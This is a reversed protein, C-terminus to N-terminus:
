FEAQTKKYQGTRQWEEFDISGRRTGAETGGEKLLALNGKAGNDAKKEWVQGVRPCEGPHVSVRCGLHIEFHLSRPPALSM